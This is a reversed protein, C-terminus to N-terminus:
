CKIQFFYTQSRYLQICEQMSLHSLLNTSTLGRDSHATGQQFCVGDNCPRGHIYPLLTTELIADVYEMAKMSRQVFLLHSRSGYSISKVIGFIVSWIIIGNNTHVYSQTAVGLIVASEKWKVSTTDHKNISFLLM